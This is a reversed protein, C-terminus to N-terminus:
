FPSAWFYGEHLLLVPRHKEYCDGCNWGFSHGYKLALIETGNMNALRALIKALMNVESALMGTNINAEEALIKANYWGHQM